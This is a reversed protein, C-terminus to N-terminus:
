NERSDAAKVRDAKFASLLAAASNVLADDVKFLTLVEPPEDPTEELPFLHPISIIEITM